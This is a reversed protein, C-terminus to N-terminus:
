LREYTTEVGDAAIIGFFLILKKRSLNIYTKEKNGDFILYANASTNNIAKSEKMITYTGSKTVKGDTIFEYNNGEFKLINGNGPKNKQNIIPIFGGVTGRFEWRGSINDENDDNGKKCAFLTCIIMIVSFIKLATKM